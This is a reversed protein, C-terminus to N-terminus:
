DFGLDEEAQAGFLTGGDEVGLAEHVADHLEDVASHERVEARRRHSEMDLVREKVWTAEGAGGRGEIEGAAEGELEAGNVFGPERHKTESALDHAGAAGGGAM